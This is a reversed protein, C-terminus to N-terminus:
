GDFAYCGGMTLVEHCILICTHTYIFVNKKTITCISIFSNEYFCSTRTEVLVLYKISTQM